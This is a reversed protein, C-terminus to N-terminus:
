THKVGTAEQQELKWMNIASGPYLWVCGAEPDLVGLVCVRSHPQQRKQLLKTTIDNNSKTMLWMATATLGM